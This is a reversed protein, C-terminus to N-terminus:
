TSELKSKGPNKVLTEISHLKARQEEARGAKGAKPLKCAFPFLGGLVSPCMCDVAVSWRFQHRSFGRGQPSCVEQLALGVNETDVCVSEGGRKARHVCAAARESEVEWM